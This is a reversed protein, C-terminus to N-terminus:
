AIFIDPPLALGCATLSRMLRLSPRYDSKRERSRRRVISSRREHTRRTRQSMRTAYTDDDASTAVVVRATVNMARAIADVINAVLPRSPSDGFTGIREIKASHRTESPTKRRRPLFNNVHRKKACVCQDRVFKEASARARRCMHHVRLKAISRSSTRIRRPNKCNFFEQARNARARAIAAVFRSSSACREDGWTANASSTCAENPRFRTKKNTRYYDSHLAQSERLCQESVAMLDHSPPCCHRLLCLLRLLRLLTLRRLLLLLKM